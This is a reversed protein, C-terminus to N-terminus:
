IKRNFNWYTPNFGQLLPTETDAPIIVLLARMARTMGVFMTRRERALLEAREEATADSPMFPYTGTTFGALAVIPFELGKSSNLTLVKVGSRTLNLDQGSMFTAEIGQEHLLGALTRGARESPCLLACSGMTLRLSLLAKKFFSALLQAEHWALQVSRVDPLPGNNVYHRESAETELASSALYSQAAEGIESTSRYNARLISTRGQFKLSEHVDSWTFGSGYISQNADATVFIRNSAKCLKILMRLLTPDLDQAEDIVVADYSRALPSAEVLDEVRARRQQWSEKNSAQVLALWREYIKWLLRRQTANLAVKRGTRATTLYHELTSIQRATIVTNFEQLLYAIGMKDLTQRQVQQQLPNGELPTDAIAQRLLNLQDKDSLIERTQGCQQLVEYALKDATSVRVYQANEGLLQQLLQESSKILANTYTTFLIRPASRNNQKLQTLLSRIRYLAITSKGTGPGGKVLTPGTTSLSWNVYKEQEPSLKLLFALLDGDKYRLLDDTNTLIYDPQQEVQRLSPEFMHADIRLLFEDAVGPCALLEDQTKITLLRTHYLPPIELQQLLAVTIPTPLKQDAPDSYTVNYSWAADAHAPPLSDDLSDDVATLLDDDWDDDDAHLNGKYTTESRRIINLIRLSKDDFKYLIRFNGSRLRHLKNDEHHNLQKKVKGDPLPNQIILAVKNMIQTMEKGQFNKLGTFFAPKMLIQRTM